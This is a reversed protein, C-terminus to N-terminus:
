RPSDGTPGPRSIPGPEGIPGTPGPSVKPGSSEIKVRLKSSRVAVEEARIRVEEARTKAVNIRIKAQDLRIKAEDARARAEDSRARAEESRRKNVESRKRDEEFRAKAQDSKIKIVESQVVNATALKSSNSRKLKVRKKAPRPNQKKRLNLTDTQRPEIIHKEAPTIMRDPPKSVSQSGVSSFAATLVVATVLCVTLLSKEIGSLTHNDNSVMRRVRGVLSNRNAALMMAFRQNVQYQQCSLLANIYVTKNQKTAIVMDDCCNEREAKILTSIWLVAPNFFFILELFNQLVNVLYDRRRIHSLEHLLIVEVEAVSLNAMLGVPLLILPKLHGLVMPIKAIGSEVVTIKNKIELIECLYSVKDVWYKGLPILQERKLRYLNYFGVGLRTFKICIMLFWVLVIIESRSNLYQYGSFLINNESSDITQNYVENIGDPAALHFLFILGTALTFMLLYGTLLRYRLRASSRRTFIITLGSVVSLVLGLWLSQLLTDCIAQILQHKM